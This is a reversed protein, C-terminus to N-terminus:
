KNNRLESAVDFDERRIKQGKGNKKGKLNAYSDATALFVALPHYKELLWDTDSKFYRELRDISEFYGLVSFLDKIKKTISGNLCTTSRSEYKDEWLLKYSKYFKFVLDAGRAKRRGM